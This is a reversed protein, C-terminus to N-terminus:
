SLKGMIVRLTGIITVVRKIGCFPCYPNFILSKSLFELPMMHSIPM